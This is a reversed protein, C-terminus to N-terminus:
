LIKVFDKKTTRSIAVYRWAKKCDNPVENWEHIVYPENFTQGQSKHCTIAYAPEFYQLYENVELTHTQSSVEIKITAGNNAVVKGRENKCINLKYFAKKTIIPMGKLIAGNTYKANIKEKLKNTFVIHLKYKSYIDKKDEISFETLDIEHNSLIKNIYNTMDSSRKITKLVCRNYDCLQKFIDLQSFNIHEWGVPPLQEFDGVMIIQTKRQKTEVLFSHVEPDLMSVEDIILTDVDKTQKRTSFIKYFMHATSLHSKDVKDYVTLAINSPAIIQVRKNISTLENYLKKITTSKGTGAVGNIMLSKNEQVVARFLDNESISQWERSRYKRTNITKEKQKFIRSKKKLLIQLEEDTLKKISGREDSTIFKVQKPFVVCDVKIKLPKVIPQHSTKTSEILDLIRAQHRQVILIYIPAFNEYVEKSKTSTIKYLNEFVKVCSADNKYKEIAIASDIYSPMYSTIDYTKSWRFFSGIMRNILSKATSASYLKYTNQVTTSHFAQWQVPIQYSITIRQYKLAKQIIEGYYWFGKKILSFNLSSETADDVFYLFNSKLKGDYPSIDCMTNVFPINELTEFLYSYQKNFDYAVVQSADIQAEYQEIVPHISCEHQFVEKIVQNYTSKPLYLREITKNVFFSIPQNEFAINHCKCMEYVQSFFENFYIHVQDSDIQIPFRERFKVQPWKNLKSRILFFVEELKSNVSYVINTPLNQSIMNLMEDDSPNYIFEMEQFKREKEEEEEKPKLKSNLAYTHTISKRKKEDTIPYLHGNFCKFVLCVKTNTSQHSYKQILDDYYDVCVFSVGLDSCIIQIDQTCFGDEITRQSLFSGNESLLVEDKVLNFLYDINLKKAIGLKSKYPQLFSIIYDPVCNKFNTEKSYGEKGMYLQLPSEHKMPIFQKNPFNQIKQNVMVKVNFVEYQILTSEHIKSDIHERIAEDVNAKSPAKNLEIEFTQLTENKKSNIMDQAQRTINNQNIVEVDSTSGRMKLVNSNQPRDVILIKAQIIFSQKQLELLKSNLKEVRRKLDGIRKIAYSKNSEKIGYEKLKQLLEKQQNQLTQVGQLENAKEFLKWLANKLHSITKYSKAAFYQGTKSIILDRYQNYQRYLPDFELRFEMKKIEENVNNKNVGELRLSPYPASFGLAEYAKVKDRLIKQKAIFSM